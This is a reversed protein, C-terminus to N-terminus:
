YDGSDAMDNGFMVCGMVAGEDHEVLPANKRKLEAARRAAELKKKEQAEKIGHRVYWSLESLSSSHTHSAHMNCYITRTAKSKRSM